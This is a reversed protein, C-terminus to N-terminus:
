NYCKSQEKKLFDFGRLNFVRVGLQLRQSTKLLAADVDDTGVHGDAGVVVSRRARLSQFADDPDLVLVAGRKLHRFGNGRFRKLTSKNFFHIAPKVVRVNQQHKNIIKYGSKSVPNKSSTNRGHVVYCATVAVLQLVLGM